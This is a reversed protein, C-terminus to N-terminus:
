SSFLKRFDGDFGDLFEHMLLVDDVDVPDATDSEELAASEAPDDQDHVARAAAFDVFGSGSAGSGDVVEAAVFSRAHCDQCQVIMM